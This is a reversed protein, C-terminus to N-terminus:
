AYGIYLDFTNDGTLEAWVWVATIDEDKAYRNLCATIDRELYKSHIGAGLPNDWCYVAESDLELGVSEAYGKAFTIWHEIDFAPETESPTEEIAPPQETVAPPAAEPEPVKSETQQPVGPKLQPNSNSTNDSKNPLDTSHTTQETDSATQPQESSVKDKESIEEQKEPEAIPVVEPTTKVERNENAASTESEPSNQSSESFSFPQPKEEIPPTSNCGTLVLLLMLTLFAITKSKM